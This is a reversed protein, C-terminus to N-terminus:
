HTRPGIYFKLGSRVHRRACSPATRATHTAHPFLAPPFDFSILYFRAMAFTPPTLFASAMRLAGPSCALPLWGRAQVKMEALFVASM